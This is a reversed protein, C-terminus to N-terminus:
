SLFILFPISLYTTSCSENRHCPSGLSSLVLNDFFRSIRPLHETPSSGLGRHLSYLRPLSYRLLNSPSEASSFQLLCSIFSGESSFDPLPELLAPVFSNPSFPSWVAPNPSGLPLTEAQSVPVKLPHLPAPNLGLFCALVQFQYQRRLLTQPSHQLSCCIGM